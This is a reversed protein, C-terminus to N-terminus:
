ELPLSVHTDAELAGHLYKQKITTTLTEPDTKSSLKTLILRVAPYMYDEDAIFRSNIQDVALVVPQPHDESLEFKVM